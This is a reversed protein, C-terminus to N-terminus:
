ILVVAAHHAEFQSVHGYFVPLCGGGGGGPETL